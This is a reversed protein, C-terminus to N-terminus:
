QSVETLAVESLFKISRNKIRRVTDYTINYKAAVEKMTLPFDKDIGFSDVLIDREFEPLLKLLLEVQNTELSKLAEDEVNTEQDAIFDGLQKDNEGIEDQFSSLGLVDSMEQEFKELDEVSIGLAEAIEDKGPSEGQYNVSNRLKVLSKFRDGAHVPIRITSDQNHISRDIGQKIWITAYTSFQFGRQPEFKHIARDLGITGEQILDLLEMKRITRKHALSVVLRLNTKLMADRAAIAAKIADSHEPLIELLGDQVQTKIRGFSFDSSATDVGYNLELVDKGEDLVSFNEIMEEPTLVRYTGMENLYADLPDVSYLAPSGTEGSHVKTM